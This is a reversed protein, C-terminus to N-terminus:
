NNKPTITAFHEWKEMKVNEGKGAVQPTQYKQVGVSQGDTEKVLKL